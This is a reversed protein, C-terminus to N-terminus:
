EGERAGCAPCESPVKEGGCIDIIEQWHCIDCEYVDGEETEEVVFLM